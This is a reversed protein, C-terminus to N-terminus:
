MITICSSRNCKVLNARVMNINHKKVSQLVHHGIVDTDWEEEQGDKLRRFTLVVAFVLCTYFFFNLFFM